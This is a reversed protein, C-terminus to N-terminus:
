GSDNRGIGMRKTIGQDAAQQLQNIVQAPINPFLHHMLAAFDVALCESLTATELIG